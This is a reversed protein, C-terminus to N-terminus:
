EDFLNHRMAYLAIGASNKSGIKEQIKERNSEITRISVGFKAAIEKNTLEQCVMKMIGLERESFKVSPMTKGPIFRRQEKLIAIKKAVAPTYYQRGECVAKVAAQLETSNTNKLLYGDAGANLLDIIFHEDDFTTLIIVGIGLHQEKIQRCAEIGNGGPMRIDVLALDPKAEEILELLQIGNEAEGVLVIEAQGKLLLKFGNRFIAHDDAIVIRIQSM